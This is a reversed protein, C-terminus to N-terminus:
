SSTLKNVCTLIFNNNYLIHLNNKNNKKDFFFNIEINIKM